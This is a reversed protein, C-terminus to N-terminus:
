SKSANKFFKLTRDIDSDDSYTPPPPFENKRGERFSSSATGSLQGTGSTNPKSHSSSDKYYDPPPAFEQSRKDWKSSRPKYTDYDYSPPPAFESPREDRLRDMQRAWNWSSDEDTKGKDWERESAEKEEKPLPGIFEEKEKEESDEDSDKEEEEDSPLPDLGMKMRKRMKVKKLREAKLAKRKEKVKERQARQNETQNRLDDLTKMQEKRQEEDKAFKYYATGHNRVEDFRINEYHVPGTPKEMAEKEEKEWKERLMQRYMDSSLLDPMGKADFKVSTGGSSCQGPENGLERDMEMFKPLDKKMCRRTRGLSDLYDVWEEGPNSPPPDSGEKEEREKSERERKKVHFDYIAKQEFDVLYPSEELEDPLNQPDTLKEYLKSKAELAKRSKELDDEEEAKAELDKQARELVGINKKDWINLKKETPRAKIYNGKLLKEQKLEEQKRYLEAKLDILSSSEMNKEM